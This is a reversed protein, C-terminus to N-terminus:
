HPQADKRVDSVIKIEQIVQEHGNGIKRDPHYDKKENM